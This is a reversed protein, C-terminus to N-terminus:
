PRTINSIKIRKGWRPKPTRQKNSERGFRQKLLIARLFANSSDIKEIERQTPMYRRDTGSRRNVEVRQNEVRRESAKTHSLYRCIKIVTWAHNMLWYHSVFLLIFFGFLVPEPVKLFLSATIGTFSLGLSFTLIISLAQNINYGAVHFVHHLHERDPNFPSRGKRLRRLMICVSDFLPLAM